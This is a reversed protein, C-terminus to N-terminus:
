GEVCEVDLRGMMGREFLLFYVRLGFFALPELVDCDIM